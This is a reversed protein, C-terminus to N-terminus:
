KSSDQENAESDTDASFLEDLKREYSHYDLYEYLEERTQLDDILDKQTGATRLAKFVNEAAKNAARFATLPYLAIAVGVSRLEDVSFAPTMGFETLNALVPVGTADNFRRYDGLDSVAEAFIMNAGAEVYAVSREIAADVGEAAIADTRAM